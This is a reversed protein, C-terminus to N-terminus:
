RHRDITPRQGANDGEPKKITENAKRVDTTRDIRRADAQDDKKERDLDGDGAQEKRDMLAEKQLSPVPVVFSAARLNLPSVRLANAVSRVGPIGIAIENTKEREADSRVQGTVTVDGHDVSFSIDCNKLSPEQSLSKGLQVLISRELDDETQAVLTSGNPTLVQAADEQGRPTPRCGSLALAFGLM